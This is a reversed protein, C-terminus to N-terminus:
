AVKPEEDYNEIPPCECFLNRDGYVNDIRKVPPWYKKDYRKDPYFATEKSYCHNWESEIMEEATHPSNVLPNDEITYKKGVLDIEKRISIMAECFRDIELKSESETPEIMLTGPVPFSQTPAHFGYDILRKAIDEESIGTERKIPRIDVICEHAVKNNQGTYLISYYKSLKHAIYNAHLLAITTAQTLGLGGMMRIYSYSIPLISASGWHASSVSGFSKTKESKFPDHFHTPLYAALHKKVAIPGCGPGGGGHPICFTKHLNIHCVDIGFLAPKALGVLGNFNAGDLFCQGGNSHIIECIKVIEQEFVGHTSPYTIMLAALTDSYKSAKAQLDKVDVNGKEDCNVVVVKLGALVASAPNTGHASSPILCINRNTQGNDDLYSKITMLGAYEGQAGSNAQMSVQDFGTIHSLMKNLDESLKLYGKVQDMPVFPHIRAFGRYAIPILETAANLKMTCSGLPIMARNLAIDKDALFKLYRMMETESRYKKFIPHTLFRSTRRKNKFIGLKNNNEIDRSVDDYNSNIGFISLLKIVDKKSTTEDFSIGVRDEDIYRINISENLAKFFYRNSMNKTHIVITDFFEDSSIEFKSKISSAFIKTKKHINEAIAYIGEPGHYVSFAACVNALLAQATCINSTAKDRRIHQERTQLAMRYSKKGRKDITVGIIRGPVSRIFENKCAFFASHPGGFGLPQGMRQSNGVVVDADMEGPPKLLALSLLDTAVCVLNNNKHCLKIINELDNLHGYTDPYQILIGFSEKLDNENFESILKIKINLPKARTKVVSITQPHCSSDILFTNKNKDNNHRLCLAMAEAASTGEDLLSANSIDMKTMDIIVQQFNMLMELRGQSIEPQYPTYATYWGPDQIMNRHIVSPTINNYYGMGVYTKFNKNTRSLRSMEDLMEIETDISEINLKEKLLINKPLILHILDNLSDCELEKLMIEHDESNSGIHRYTFQSFKEM